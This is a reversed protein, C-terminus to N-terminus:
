LRDRQQQYHGPTTALSRKFLRQLHAQDAFGNAQAVDAIPLGERLQRRACQLRVDNLWAHPTLGYRQKFVRILYSPSLESVASLQELTLPESCHERIYRAVQALPAQAHDHRVRTVPVRRLLLSFFTICDDVKEAAARQQDVLGVFLTELARFLQPDSSLMACFPQFEGTASIGLQHQLGGLWTTDVYLMFYAWRQDQLPNCAHVAGPNMLVLNGHSVTCRLAGNVYSSQGATVAGISFSEHSHAAHSFHRGDQVERAEIFPVAPDRWFRSGSRRGPHAVTFSAAM